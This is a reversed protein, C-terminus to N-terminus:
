NCYLSATHHASLLFFYRTPSIPYCLQTFCVPVLFLRLKSEMPDIPLPIHYVTNGGKFGEANVLNRNKNYTELNTLKHNNSIQALVSLHDFVDRFINSGHVEYRCLESIGSLSSSSTKTVQCYSKRFQAMRTGSYLDDACLELRKWIYSAAENINEISILIFM